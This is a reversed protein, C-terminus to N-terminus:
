FFKLDPGFIKFVTYVAIWIYKVNPKKKKVSFNPTPVLMVEDEGMSAHKVIVWM